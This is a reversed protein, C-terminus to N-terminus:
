EQGGTEGTVDGSAATLRIRHVQGQPQQHGGGGDGEDQDAQEDEAGVGDVLLPPLAVALQELLQPVATSRPGVSPQRGQTTKVRSGM